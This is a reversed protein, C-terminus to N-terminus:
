ATELFTEVASVVVKWLLNVEHPQTSDFFNWLIFNSMRQALYSLDFGFHYIEFKELYAAM